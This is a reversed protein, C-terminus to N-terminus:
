HPAWQATYKGVVRALTDTADSFLWLEQSPLPPSQLAAFPFDATSPGKLLAQTFIEAMSKKLDGTRKDTECGM